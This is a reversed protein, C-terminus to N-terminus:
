KNEQGIGKFVDAMNSFQQDPLNRLWELVDQTVNHQRAYEVIQDRNAPFDIGELAKAADRTPTQPQPM